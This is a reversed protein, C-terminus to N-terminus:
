ALKLKWVVLTLDVLVGVMGPNLDCNPRVVGAIYVLLFNKQFASAKMSFPGFLLMQISLKPRVNKVIVKHNETQLRNM